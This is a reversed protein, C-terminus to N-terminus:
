LSWVGLAALLLSTPDNRDQRGKRNFEDMDYPNLELKVIQEVSLPSWNTPDTSIEIGNITIYLDVSETPAQVDRGAQLVHQLRTSCAVPAVVLRPRLSM